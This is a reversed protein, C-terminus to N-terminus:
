HLPDEALIQDVEIEETEPRGAFEIFLAGIAPDSLRQRM